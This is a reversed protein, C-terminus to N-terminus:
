LGSPAAVPASTIITTEPETSSQCVRGRRTGGTGAHGADVPEDGRPQAAADGDGKQHKVADDRQHFREIGPAEIEHGFVVAQGHGDEHDGHAFAPTVPISLSLLFIFILNRVGGGFSFIM